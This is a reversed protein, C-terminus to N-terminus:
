RSMVNTTPEPMEEEEEEVVGNELEREVAEDNRATSLSLPMSTVLWQCLSYAPTATFTSMINTNLLNVVERQADRYLAPTFGDHAQRQAAATITDRQRTSINIQQVSNEAIFLTYMRRGLIARLRRSNIKNYRAAHLYFYVLELSHTRQVEDKFLELCVPHSLLEHLTPTAMKATLLPNTETAGRLTTDVDVSAAFPSEDIRRPELPALQRLVDTEHQLWRKDHDVRALGRHVSSRSTTGGYSVTREHNQNRASAPVKLQQHHANLASEEMAATTELEMPAPSSPPEAPDNSAQLPPATTSSPTAQPQAATSDRTTNSLWPHRLISVASPSASSSLWSSLTSPEAESLRYATSTTGHAALIMAATAHDLAERTSMPRLLNIADLMKVLSDAQLRLTAAERITGRAASLQVAKRNLRRELGSSHKIYQLVEPILRLLAVVTMVSVCATATKVAPLLSNSSVISDMVLVMVMHSMGCLVIFLAFLVVILKYRLPIPLPNIHLFILLQVPISIYCFSITWDAFNSLDYLSVHLLLLLCM